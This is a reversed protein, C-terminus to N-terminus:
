IKQLVLCYHHHVNSVYTTPFGWCGLRKNDQCWIMEQRLAYTKSLRKALDWAIPKMHGDVDRMNQAVIVLYAKDKLLPSIRDFIQGLREIYEEYSEINGVDLVLDSYYIPLGNEEREKHVTENGGRSKRLMNWYPPSTMLFDFIPAEGEYHQEIQGITLYADGPIMQSTSSGEIKSLSSDAIDIFDPNLEIGISNRNMEKCAILTSGVGAFPDLVWGNEKTFFRVFHAVLEEPYKAPHIVQAAKRPKPNVVFWSKTAKVWEKGDLTNLTQKTEKNKSM